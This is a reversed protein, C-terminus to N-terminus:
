GPGYKHLITVADSARLAFLHERLLLSKAEAKCILHAQMKPFLVVAWFSGYPCQLVDLISCTAKYRNLKM